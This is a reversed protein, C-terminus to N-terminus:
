NQQKSRVKPKGNKPISFSVKYGDDRDDYIMRAGIGYMNVLRKESNALGIGSGKSSHSKNNPQYGVGDDEISFDFNNESEKISLWVTGGSEKPLIGHSVSNEVIPQLVMPPVKLDLCEPEVEESYTLKDGFRLSQIEMYTNIFELEQSLSVETRMNSELMYRMVDAFMRLTTRAKKVDVTMLSNIVNLTNYAFHPNIQSKLLALKMEENAETISELEHYARKLTLNKAHLITEAKENHKILFGINMFVLILSSTLNTIFDLKIDVDLVIGFINFDTFTLVLFSFIIILLYIYKVRNDSYSFFVFTASMLPFFFFYVGAEKSLLTNLIFILVAFGTILVYRAVKHYYKENLIYTALGVSVMLIETLLLWFYNEDSGYRMYDDISHLTLIVVIVIALQSLLLNQKQVVNYDDGEKVELRSLRVNKFFDKFVM